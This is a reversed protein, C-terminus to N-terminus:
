FLNRYICFLVSIRPAKLSMEVCLRSKCPLYYDHDGDVAKQMAIVQFIQNPSPHVALHIRGIRVQNGAQNMEVINIEGSIQINKRAFYKLAQM